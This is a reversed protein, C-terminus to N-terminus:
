YGGVNVMVEISVLEGIDGGRLWGDIGSSGAM